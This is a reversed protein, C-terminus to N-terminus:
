HWLHHVCHANKGPCRLSPSCIFPCICHQWSLRNSSSPLSPHEPFETFAVLFPAENLEHLNVTIDQKWVAIYNFNKVWLWDRLKFAPKINQMAFAVIYVYKKNGYFSVVEFKNCLM